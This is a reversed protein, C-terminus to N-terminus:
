WLLISFHVMLIMMVVLGTGEGLVEMIRVLRM